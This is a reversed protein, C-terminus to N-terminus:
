GGDFHSKAQRWAEQIRVFQTEDGGHDPHHNKRLIMYNAKVESLNTASPCCLISRWADEDPAPLSEFGRFAQQMMDGSGWRAIGRLAEVTKRIAHINEKVKEWKDCSFCMQQGEWEFYVAVGSDEPEARNAYPMGDPKTQVNTSLVPNIAGLLELQHSLGDRARAFTIDFRSQEIDWSDTRPRGAPWQLPYAQHSM